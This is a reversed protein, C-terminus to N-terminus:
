VKESGGAATSLTYHNFFFGDNDTREMQLSTNDSKNIFVFFTYNDPLLHQVDSCYLGAMHYSFIHMGLNTM